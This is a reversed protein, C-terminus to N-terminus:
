SKFTFIVGLSLNLEHCDSFNSFLVKQSFLWLLWWFRWFRWKASNKCIIFPFQGADFETYFIPISFKIRILTLGIWFRSNIISKVDNTFNTYLFTPPVFDDMELNSKVSIKIMIIIIMLLFANALTLWGDKTIGKPPTSCWKEIRTLM